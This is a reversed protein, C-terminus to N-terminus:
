GKGKRDIVVKQLVVDKVPTSRQPGGVEVAAIKQVVDLECEGFITHRMNLHQPTGTTIFFQSGNTGPGANAMALLGPRSFKVDPWVEDGFRYGPGGMGTGLPDGGQIMFDKIVRHFKTGDYLPKKTAGGTSPDIWEKTGEALGVFNTVTEPALDPWLKCAIDGLNTKLTAVLEQEPALKLQAKAAVVQAEPPRSPKEAETLASKAQKAEARAKDLEDELVKVRGKLADREQVVKQHQEEPVGCAVVWALLGWRLGRM